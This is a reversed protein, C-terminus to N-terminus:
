VFRSKSIDDGDFPRHIPGAGLLAQWGLNSLNEGAKRGGHGIQSDVLLKITKALIEVEKKLPM